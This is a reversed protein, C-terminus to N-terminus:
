FNPGGGILLELGHHVEEVLVLDLNVIPDIVSESQLIHERYLLGNLNLTFGQGSSTLAYGSGWRWGQLAVGASAVPWTHPISEAM